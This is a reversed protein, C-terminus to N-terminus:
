KPDFISIPCAAGGLLDAIRKGGYISPLIGVGNCGLNYLLVRNKPEFGIRRVGNPTFGMLGHWTFSYTAPESPYAHYTSRLFADLQDQIDERCHADKEYLAQNPLVADPGGICILNQATAGDEEHPRRTLYYYAEGTPDNSERTTPPFYSIATPAADMSELYGAMYGIRGTLEHHFKTDIDEGVDNILSFYEFGNTCLVVKEGSVTHGSKTSLRAGSEKLRVETVETEEYITFRDAYKSELYALIEECLRASNTCGKQFSLAAIYATDHSNLLSLISAHPAITYLGDFESPIDKRENWEQAITISEPVLGGELRLQNDRLHGLIQELTSLGAYGSFRHIPTAISADRAIEDLLSWAGEVSRQGESALLLGFEEVLEAFPREFYSAIQGANHGTAGHAVRDRELLVVSTKTDRLTFYATMTGAIGGGVVVVDASTDSTLPTLARTRNIQHIWPSYNRLM